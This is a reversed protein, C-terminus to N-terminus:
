QNSTKSSKEPKQIQTGDQTPSKQKGKGKGKAKKAEKKAMMEDYKKSQEATLVAKHAMKREERIKKLDAKKDAKAAKMKDKYEKNAQKFKAKQDENLGLEKEMKDDENSTSQETKPAPRGSKIPTTTNQASLLSGTLLLAAFLGSKLSINM